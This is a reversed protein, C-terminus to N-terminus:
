GMRVERTFLRKRRRRCKKFKGLCNQLPLKTAELIHLPGMGTIEATTLPQSFSVGVFSQAALNYVEDPRIEKMLRVAGSADTLDFDVLSFNKHESIGLEKIRWFNQSSLRRTAGYVCYGRELLFKSLYAGDQGSIGTVFAKKM